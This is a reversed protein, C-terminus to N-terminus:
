KIKIFILSVVPSALSSETSLDNDLPGDVVITAKGTNALEFWDKGDSTITGFGSLLSPTETNGWVSCGAYVTPETLKRFGISIVNNPSNNAKLKALVQFAVFYTGKELITVTSNVTNLYFKGNMDLMKLELPVQNNYEVEYGNPNYESTALIFTTPVELPGPIGQPGQLGQDGQEGKPGREGQLGPVGQPGQLGREGQPGPDGQVGKEGQLGRPGMPGVEGQPGKIKGVNVWESNEESWVYLDEDVLYSQGPAGDPHAAELEQFNTYSGLITVSTGDNGKPGVEGQPGMPGIEGQPGMAGREGQIGQPGVDGQVGPIGQPGTEGQPGIEGQEGKIVGVDLWSNNNISWVYLNDGVIFADGGKGVPNNNILEEWTDYNGLISLPAGAPGTPGTPGIVGMINTCCLLGKQESQAKKVKQCAREYANM